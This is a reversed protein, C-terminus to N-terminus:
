RLAADYPGYQITPRLGLTNSSRARQQGSGSSQGATLVKRRRHPLTTPRGTARHHNVQAAGVGKICKRPHTEHDTTADAARHDPVPHLAPQTM